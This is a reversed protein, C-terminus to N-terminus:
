TTSPEYCSSPSPIILQPESLYINQTFFFDIRGGATGLARGQWVSDGTVKLTPISVDTKTMERYMCFLTM